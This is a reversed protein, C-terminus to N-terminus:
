EIGATAESPRAERKARTRKKDDPPQKQGGKGTNTSKRNGSGRSSKKDSMISGEWNLGRNMRNSCIFELLVDKIARNIIYLIM